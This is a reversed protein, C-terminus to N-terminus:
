KRILRLTQDENHWQYILGKLGELNSPDGAGLRVVVANPIKSEINAVLESDFFFVGTGYESLNRLYITAPGQQRMWEERVSEAIPGARGLMERYVQINAVVAAVNVLLYLSLLFGARRVKGIISVLLLISFITPMYLYRSHQMSSGIWGAINLVPLSALVTCVMLSIERRGCCGRCAIATVLIFVVYLILVAPVWTPAASTTNAGFISIPLVRLLSTFMKLGIAFHPSEPSVSAPYGGFNGYVAIRVLVMLVSIAVMLSFYFFIKRKGPRPIAWTRYTCLIFAILLPFCYGSEKNMLALTFCSLSAPLEWKWDAAARFYDLAFVLAGLTFATALLDFRAAPWLVPEFHVAAVAYLLGSWSSLIRNFGLKRSLRVVLLCNLIHLAISQAHYGPYWAGFLRYDIWLSIFTLPRYFGDAQRTTFLRLVSQFSSLGASIHRHTWDHHGFNVQTSSYYLALVALPILVKLITQNGVSPLPEQGGLDSYNIKRPLAGCVLLMLIFWSSMMLIPKFLGHATLHIPGIHVDYHGIISLVVVNLCFLCLLLILFHWIFFHYRLPKRIMDSEPITAGSCRGVFVTGSIFANSLM